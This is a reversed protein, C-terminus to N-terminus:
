CRYLNRLVLSWFLFFSPFSATCIWIPLFLNTKMKKNHNHFNFLQKRSYSFMECRMTYCMEVIEFIVNLLDRYTRTKQFNLVGCVSLCSFIFLPHHVQISWKWDRYGTGISCHEIMLQALPVVVWIRKPDIGLWCIIEIQLSILGCLLKNSNLFVYVKVLRDLLHAASQVNADSDASLKCLADFIQNFFVIFDGRVVQFFIYFIDNYSLLHDSQLLICIDTYDFGWRLLTIYLKVLM